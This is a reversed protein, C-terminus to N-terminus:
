KMVIFSQTLRADESSIQAFYTGRSWTTPIIELFHRGAEFKRAPYSVMRQGLANFIVLEIYRDQPVDLILTGQSNIPNPFISAIVFNDPAPINVEFDALLIRESSGELIFLVRYYYDGQLFLNDSFQYVMNKESLGKSKFSAIQEFYENRTGDVNMISVNAREVIFMGPANESLTSWNLVINGAEVYIDATDLVIPSVPKELGSILLTFEQTESTFHTVPEVILSYIGADPNPIYIQEIPDVSNIGNTAPLAPTKASLIYPFFEEGTTQNVLKLNLDHILTPTPNDLLEPTPNKLPDFPPDTWSLTVRIDHDQLSLLDVEYLSTDSLQEEIIRTPKRFTAQIHQAAKETNLLGWGTLYDPGPSELDSATHIALGKLTAARLPAGLLKKALQQLLVLSGAVNPTAMSTGSYSAYDTSGSAITSLLNEGVGVIDPKVRGDDTPGASSFVSVGPAKFSDLQIISGVTLVNKATAIGTLTDFGEPSGDPPIPRTSANFEKWRNDSDLALYIGSRAGWDDRENGASVVPLFFPHTYTVHDFLSADQDYYGFIYDEEPSVEYNGFWQWRSSDATLNFKHWGAIRGYSHNSILLGDRAEVLMETSHFNWNYSHVRAKPAMGLAETYVGSAVLTGSVHTAHNSVGGSEKKIIRSHHEQHGDFAPSADWMGIVLNLGSLDLGSSQGPHLNITRTFTGAQQNHTTFFVPLGDQFGHVGIISEDSLYQFLPYRNEFAWQKALTARENESAQIDALSKGPVQALTVGSSFFLFTYALLLILRAM